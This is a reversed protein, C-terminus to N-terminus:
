RTIREIILGSEELSVLRYIGELYRHGQTSKQCVILFDISMLILRRIAHLSWHPAGMQILMELRLLAQSPDSAHLTSASGAHGTALALLLDKAESGRVEGIVLRDPRMRLSQRVLDALSILPLVNRPDYRTLLHSSALNPRKLEQSDEIIVVRENPQIANLMANMVSTKGCGTAGIVLFNKKKAIVSKLTEFDTDTAWNKERLDNLTWRTFRHKRITLRVQKKEDSYAGVIHLRHGQWHCDIFPHILNPEQGTELYLRQLFNDYTQLTLFTDNSPHLQGEWEIWISDFSDIIIETIADNNLLAELPGSGFYEQRLRQGFEEPLAELERNIVQQFAEFGVPRNGHFNFYNENLPISRIKENIQTCSNKLDIM